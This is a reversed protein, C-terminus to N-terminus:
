GEFSFVIDGDNNLYVQMKAYINYDKFSDKVFFTELEAAENVLNQIENAIQKRLLIKRDMQINAIIQSLKELEEISMNRLKQENIKM